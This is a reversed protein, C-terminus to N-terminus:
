IHILSLVEYSVASIGLSVILVGWGLALACAKGGYEGYRLFAKVKVFLENLIVAVFLQTFGCIM